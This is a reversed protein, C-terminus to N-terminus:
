VSTPVEVEVFSTSCPAGDAHWYTARSGQAADLAIISSSRTGYSGRHICLANDDELAREDLQTSHDSLVARLDRLRMTEDVEINVEEFLQHSRAIRPCTPDNVELNTLLHVGAPLERVAVRHGDPVAVIARERDAALLTFSNYDDGKETRLMSEIRRLSEAQLAKLCLLGRSSKSPDPGSASRRNLLGVVVGNQNLGLWTGGAELDQGAVIWPNTAIVGPAVTPRSLFEDRNAAILLPTKPSVRSYLALTCM